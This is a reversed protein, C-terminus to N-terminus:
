VVGLVWWSFMISYFCGLCFLGYKTALLLCFGASFFNHGHGLRKERELKSFTVLYLSITLWGHFPFYLFFGIMAANAGFIMGPLLSSALGSIVGLLLATTLNLKSWFVLVQNKFEGLEKEMPQRMGKKPLLVCGVDVCVVWFFCDNQGCLQWQDCEKYFQVANDVVLCCSCLHPWIVTLYARVM